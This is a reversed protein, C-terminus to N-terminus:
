VHIGLSSLMEEDGEMMREARRTEDYDLRKEIKEAEAELAEKSGAKPKDAVARSLYHTLDAFAYRGADCNSVLVGEVFYEHAEQVSFNYVTENRGTPEVRLVRIPAAVPNRTDTRESSWAVSPVPSTSM